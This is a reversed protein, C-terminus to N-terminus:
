SQPFLMVEACKHLTTDAYYNVLYCSLLVPCVKMAAHWYLRSGPPQVVLVLFLSHVHGMQNAHIECESQWQSKGCRGLELAVRSKVIIDSM